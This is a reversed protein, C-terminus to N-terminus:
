RIHNLPGCPWLNLDQIITEITVPTAKNVVKETFELHANITRDLSTNTKPSRLCTFEEM